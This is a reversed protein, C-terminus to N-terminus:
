HGAHELPKAKLFTALSVGLAVLFLLFMIVSGGMFLAAGLILFAVLFMLIGVGQTSHAGM